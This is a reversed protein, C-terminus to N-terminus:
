EGLADDDELAASRGARCCHRPAAPPRASSTSMLGNDLRERHSPARSPPRGRPGPEGATGRKARMRIVAIAAALADLALGAAEVGADDLMFAIV